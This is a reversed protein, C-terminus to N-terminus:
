LKSLKFYGLHLEDQKEVVADALV